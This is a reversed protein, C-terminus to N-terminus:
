HQRKAYRNTHVTDQVKTAHLIVTVQGSKPHPCSWALQSTTSFTVFDQAKLSESRIKILSPSWPTTIHIFHAHDIHQAYDLSTLLCGM